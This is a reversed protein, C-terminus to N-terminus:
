CFKQIEGTSWVIMVQSGVIIMHWGPDEAAARHGEGVGRGEDIGTMPAGAWPPAESLWRRLASRITQRASSTVSEVRRRVGRELAALIWGDPPAGRMGHATPYLRCRLGLDARGDADPEVAVGALLLDLHPMLHGVHPCGEFHLVEVLVRPIKTLECSGRPPPQDSTIPRHAPHAFSAREGGRRMVATAAVVALAAPALFVLSLAAAVQPDSGVFPVLLLPLM